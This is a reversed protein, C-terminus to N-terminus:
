IPKGARRKEASNAPPQCSRAFTRYYADVTAQLPRKDAMKMRLQEARKIALEYNSLHEQLRELLDVSDNPKYWSVLDADTGFFSRLEISNAAIIPLARAVMLPLHAEMCDADASVIAVDAAAVLDEPHDFSGPMLVDGVLSSAHIESGLRQRETGEGILWVRHQPWRHLLNGTAQVLPWAGSSRSLKGLLLIVRGDFDIQFERTITALARRAAHRDVVAGRPTIPIGDDIRVIQQPSVGSTVLQQAAAASPAIFGTAALCSRLYATGGRAERWWQVDSDVGTGSCRLWVPLAAEHAAAVVASADERMSDCYLVDFREANQTIWRTLSRLYRSLSWAGRPIELPREVILERHEIRTPWMANYRPVLITPVAGHRRLGEAVLTLRQVGDDCHPWYRRAVMLVRPGSM